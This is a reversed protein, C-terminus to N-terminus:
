ERDLVERVKAALAVPSFPKEIFSVGHELMGRLAIVDATHGSMFLQKLQPRLTLLAAALDRGNMEPMQVDTLLLHIDGAYEQAQRLAEGPSGAALVAYGQVELARRTLRLIGAEDEVLLITEWGAAAVSVAGSQAAQAAQADVRHRPVYIEFTTGQGLESSVTIFGGNQKVAGYVSALGLGTGEGVGKTTFFPEFILALTAGDMGSGTDRLTLRVYDGPAADPHMACAAADIACNETAMAITGIDAIADRANVCLNTLINALQSPDMRVPWLSPGPRWVLHIDEGLLRQLMSLLAPVTDNLDLVRPAVTQKRAYALLQRTLDASRKAANRIEVLDAYLPQAPDVQELAFEVNGLIVGLMNNFDHAVGGALRGVSEMKQAHQLQAEFTAAATEAQTRATIDHFSWVRGVINGDMIIPASYREFVREDKFHLTDRGEEASIYLAHVKALFREPDILQSVVHHLLGDDDASDILSQPVRWLEAFRKNTKIVKGNNDVALIGDATSELIANLNTESDRLAVDALKREIVLAVQSGVSALFGLDRENYINEKEYHQLVLVGITGSPTRLPVGMWSLSPSGVLVIENQERLQRSVTPTLLVPEGRRFVYATCSRPMAVPLPTSDREDVFYPFSFLGTQPDHLAVFCNEASLVRQLSHHMLKLLEDLDASTAVSQAIDHMIQHELAARKRATIDQLFSVMQGGDVPRFQVNVAVDYVSGDKRRHRSEFRDEGQAIVKQVHAVADSPTEVAEVDSVRMALLEQASYGSMRCYAENVELFHGQLDMLWFGDMATQLVARIHEESELLKWRADDFSRGITQAVRAVVFATIAVVAMLTAALLLADNGVLSPWVTRSLISQLLVVTVTLPLFARWLRASTSDGVTLRLCFNEPGVAAALAGGLFLFALATTAAMPVLHGGYMFPTGFGYGLLVTAGILMTLLGTSSAWRELRGTHRSNRQGLWLLFTGLAAAVFTVSTALAMRGVPIGQLTGVGSTLRDELTLDMGAIGGVIDLLALVTVLLALALMVGPGVGQRRGRAHSYLAVSLILFFVATSPAMPIYSPRMSGLVRLGPIYGLLGALAVVAAGACGVTVTRRFRLATSLRRAGTERDSHADATMIADRKSEDATGSLM